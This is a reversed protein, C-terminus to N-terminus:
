WWWISIQKRRLRVSPKVFGAAPFLTPNAEMFLGLYAKFQKLGAFSTFTKTGSYVRDRYAKRSTGSWNGRAINRKTDPYATFVDDANPDAFLMLDASYDNNFNCAYSVTYRINVSSVARPITISIELGALAVYEKDSATQAFLQPFYDTPLSFGRMAGLSLERVKIMRRKVNFGAILNTREINGNLEALSPAISAGSVSYFHRYVKTPDTIDGNAPLTGVIPTIVGM